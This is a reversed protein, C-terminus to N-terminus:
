HLMLISHSNNSLFVFVNCCAKVWKEETTETYQVTVIQASEAEKNETKQKSFFFSLFNAIIEKSESWSVMLPLLIFEQRMFVSEM